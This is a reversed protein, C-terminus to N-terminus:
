PSSFPAGVPERMNQRLFADPRIHDHRKEIRALEIEQRHHQRDELRAPGIQREIGRMRVAADRLHQLLAFRLKEKDTAVHQRASLRDHRGEGAGRRLRQAKEIEFREPFLVARRAVRGAAM